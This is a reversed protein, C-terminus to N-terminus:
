FKEHWPEDADAFYLTAKGRRGPDSQHLAGAYAALQRRCQGALEEVSRESTDDTEYDVAHNRDPGVIPPDVDGVIRGHRGTTASADRRGGLKIQWSTASRDHRDLARFRDVVEVLLDGVV